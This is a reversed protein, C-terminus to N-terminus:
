TREKRLLELWQIDAVDRARMSWRKTVILDSISPLFVTSGAVERMQRRSWAEEFTLREAGDATSQARAVLVDIREGNEIVYRGRARAEDAKFNAIHERAEFARNLAEVNDIHVWLDYDATMVPAGLLILARRGILLARAGSETLVQFFEADSLSAVHMVICRVM